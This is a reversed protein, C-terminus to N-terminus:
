NSKGGIRVQLGALIGFARPPGGARIVFEADTLLGKGGSSLGVAVGGMLAMRDVTTFGASLRAYPRRGFEVGGILYFPAFSDEYLSHRDKASVPQAMIEFVFGARAARDMRLQLGITPGINNAPPRDPSSRVLQQALIGGVAYVATETTPQQQAFAPVAYLLM